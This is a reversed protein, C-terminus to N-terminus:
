ISSKLIILWCQLHKISCQQSVIHMPFVTSKRKICVRRSDRKCYGICQRHWKAYFIRTSACRILRRPKVRRQMLSHRSYQSSNAILTYHAFVLQVKWACIWWRISWWIWWWLRLWNASLFNCKDSTDVSRWTCACWPLPM